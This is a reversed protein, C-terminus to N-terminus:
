VIITHTSGKGKRTVTKTDTDIIIGTLEDIGLLETGSPLLTVLNEFRKKGMYCYSTDTKTGGENNNFHAIITLPKYIESFFDLGAQWHLDAGVKYIEYVPLVYQSFAMTAASSLGISTGSKVKQVITQYLLSKRLTKLAYTPSGPGLYILDTKELAAVIDPNNADEFTNAYMIEVVPHYNTLSHLFYDRMEECVVQVNPQFGAPSSIITILPNQKQIHNLIYDQVERGIPSVTGSGILGVLSKKAIHYIPSKPIITSTEATDQIIYGKEELAKRLIDAEAYRKSKRLTNRKEFLTLIDASINNM